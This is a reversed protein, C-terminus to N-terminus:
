VKVFEALCHFYCLKPFSCLSNYVIERGALLHCLVWVDSSLNSMGLKGDYSAKEDKMSYENIQLAGLYFM